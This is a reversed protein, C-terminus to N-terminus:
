EKSEIPFVQKKLKIESHKKFLAQIDLAGEYFNDEGMVFEEMSLHEWTVWDGRGVLFFGGSFMQISVFAGPSFKGPSASALTATTTSLKPPKPCWVVVKGWLPPIQM